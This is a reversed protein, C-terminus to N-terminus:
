NLSPQYPGYPGADRRQRLVERLIATEMELLERERRLRSETSAAELLEQRRGHEVQLLAAVRYSLESPSLDDPFAPPEWNTALERLVAVYGASLDRVAAVLEAVHSPEPSDETLWRVEAVLYPADSEVVLREIRFRSDGVALLGLTGDGRREIVAIRASTGVDHPLAPGGVEEGQAILSVGLPSRATSCDRVMRLYRPEFIHLPLLMGPLLVTRLPFIPLLTLGSM